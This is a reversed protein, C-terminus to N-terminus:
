CWLPWESPIHWPNQWLFVIMFARWISCTVPILQYKMLILYRLLPIAFLFLSFGDRYPSSIHMDLISSVSHLHLYGHLLREQSVRRKNCSTLPPLFLVEMSLIFLFFILFSLSVKFYWNTGYCNCHSRAVYDTQVSILVINFVYLYHIFM